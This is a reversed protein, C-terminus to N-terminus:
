LAEARVTANRDKAVLPYRVCVRMAADDSWNTPWAQRRYINAIRECDCLWWWQADDGCEVAITVAKAIPGM